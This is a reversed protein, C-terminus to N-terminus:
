RAEDVLASPSGSREEEARRILEVLGVEELSTLRLDAHDLPLQGTIANPVAVAFLGARKAAWLGTPSDELAIAEAPAVGLAEVAALYLDPAPKAHPVDGACKVAAFHHMLSLRELHEDVWEHPSSSAVALGLGLRHAEALYAEVGPRIVEEAMLADRRGRRRGQLAERDIERGILRELHDCPDWPRTAEGHGLGKVWEDFPLECGHEVYVEQWARFTPTETDLILGDFDFVLGRIPVGNKYGRRPRDAAM